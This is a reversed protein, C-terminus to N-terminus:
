GNAQLMPPYLIPHIAPVNNLKHAVVYRSVALTFQLFAYTNYCDAASCRHLFVSSPESVVTLRFEKQAHCHDSLAWCSFM